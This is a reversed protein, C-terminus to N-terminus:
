PYKSRGHILAILSDTQYCMLGIEPLIKLLNLPPIYCAKYPNVSCLDETSLCITGPEWPTFDARAM